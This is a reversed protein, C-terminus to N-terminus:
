RFEIMYGKKIKKIKYKYRGDLFIAIRYYGDHNAIVIKKVPKIISKKVYALFKADRKFDLILENPNNIFFDRIKKDKTYIYIKYDKLLFKIFKIPFTIYQHSKKIQNQKVIIPNHWDIYKNIDVKKSKIEGSLNQYQIIVSNLVRADDPLKIKISKFKEKKILDTNNIDRIPAFPNERAFSLVSLFIILILKINM